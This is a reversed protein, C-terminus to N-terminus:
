VHEQEDNTKDKYAAIIKKVIKHRMVDIETLRVVSIGQIGKLKDLADVLGSKTKIPLDIQGPDGTIVMKSSPGLRTMFMKIQSVTTNQAEDLLVFANGLTRGRMFALPAIEIVQTEKYLTLKDAPIMDELADYIPRLYPDVKEKLDGPLFGLSEGAEVAPRTIIIKKVKKSKLANVAMAVAVYTKGTGAPGVAFVLDNKEIAEVLAQQNPSKPKIIAGRHGFLITKSDGTSSPISSTNEMEIYSNIEDASLTKYKKLHELLLFVFENLQIVDKISGILKIEDGRSVIKCKPFHRSIENLNANQEGLFDILSVNNLSITKELL